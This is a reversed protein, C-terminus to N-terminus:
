LLSLNNDYHYSKRVNCHHYKMLAVYRQWLSSNKYCHCIKMLTFFEWRLSSNGNWHHIKMVTIFKWWLSSIENCPMFIIFRWWWYLYKWWLSTIFKWWLSVIEDYYQINMVSSKGDFHHVRMADLMHSLKMVTLFKWLTHNYLNIKMINILNRLISLLRGLISHNIM